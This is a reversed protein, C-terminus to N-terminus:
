SVKNKFQQVLSELDASQALQSQATEAVSEAILRDVDGGAGRAGALKKGGSVAPIIYTERTKGM